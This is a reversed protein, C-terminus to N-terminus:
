VVQPAVSEGGIPDEAAEAAKNEAAEQQAATSLGSLAGCLDKHGKWAAVQCKRGCYWEVKCKSCRQEAPKGCMACKPDDLMQEINIADYMAALEAMEARMEEPSEKTMAAVFARAITTWDSQLLKTRVEPIQEIVVGRQEGAQPPNSFALTEVFRRLDSLVPLQDILLENFYKSLRMINQKRQENWEYKRRCDDDLLLSNLLLWVQAETKTVRRVDDPAVECWKGDTYAQPKGKITRKWPNADLLPIVTQLVDQDALLRSLVALPMAKVNELMFRLITLASMGSSFMIKSSQVALRSQDTAAMIEDKGSPELDQRRQQPLCDEPATTQWSLCCTAGLHCPRQISSRKRWCASFSPRTTSLSTVYHSEGLEESVLPLVKEKWAETVLLDHILLAIKENDILAEVVFEDSQNMVSLQAQMNLKELEQHYKVWGKRGVDDITWVKFEEVMREAEPANLLPADRANGSAM